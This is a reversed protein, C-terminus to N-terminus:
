INLVQGSNRRSPLEISYPVQRDGTQRIRGIESQSLKIVTVIYHAADTWQGLPPPESPSQPILPGVIDIRAGFLGYHPRYYPILDGIIEQDGQLIRIKGDEMNPFPPKMSFLPPKLDQVNM